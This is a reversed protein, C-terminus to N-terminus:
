PARMLIVDGDILGGLTDFVEMEIYGTGSGSLGFPDSFTQYYSCPFEAVQKGASDYVHIIGNDDCQFVLIHNGASYAFPASVEISSKEASAQVTAREEAIPYSFHLEFVKPSQVVSLNVCEAAVGAPSLKKVLLATTTSKCVESHRYLKGDGVQLLPEFSMVETPQATNVTTATANPRFSTPTLIPVTPSTIAQVGPTPQTSFPMECATALLLFTLAGLFRLANKKM